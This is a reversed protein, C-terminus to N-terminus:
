IFFSLIIILLGLSKIPVCRLLCYIWLYYWEPVIHKPTILSNAAVLNNFNGFYESDLISVLIGLIGIVLVAGYFDKYLWLYFVGSAACVNESNVTSSVCHLGLLHGIKGAAIVLGVLFHLMLLRSVIYKNGCYILDRIYTGLVGFVTLIKFIVIIGWLSMNGYVMCYGLFAVALYKM